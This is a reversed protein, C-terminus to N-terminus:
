IFFNKKHSAQCVCACVRVCVGEEPATAGEKKRKKVGSKRSRYRSVLVPEGKLERVNPGKKRETRMCTRASPSMFATTCM